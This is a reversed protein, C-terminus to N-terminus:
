GIGKEPRRVLNAIETAAEEISKFTMDVIPWDPRRGLLEYAYTVEERVFDLTAYGQSSTGLREIRAERLVALREPQVMLVAVKRRPLSFLERPPEVGLVLPVNAVRWGQTALYISAPTKCTRSVGTLIIDAEGL